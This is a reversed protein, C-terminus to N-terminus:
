GFCWGCVFWFLGLPYRVARTTTSNVSQVHKTGLNESQIGKNKQAYHSHTSFLHIAAQYVLYPFLSCLALNRSRM